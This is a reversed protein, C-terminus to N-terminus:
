NEYLEQFMKQNESMNGVSERKDDKYENKNQYEKLFQDVREDTEHHDDHVRIRATNHQKNHLMLSNDIYSGETTSPGKM